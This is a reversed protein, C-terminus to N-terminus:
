LITSSSNLLLGSGGSPRGKSLFSVAIVLATVLVCGWGFVDGYRTYFSLSRRQDEPLLPIAATKFGAQYVDQSDKFYVEHMRGTRDVWCTIGNNACRVLPLNNEVARFIAAAAHQWQASSEGFWGNNTLNILFDTEPDVHLRSSHPFIDEFCILVSTTLQLPEIVFPVPGKGISFGGEIPTFYKLFPLWKVLPIYEGFVVLKQKRYTAALRGKPDVLFSSNYFDYQRKEGAIESRREADDAGLIIWIGHNTALGMVAPYSLEMDYRLINPVAAEPWILLDPHSALSQESLRILQRFRNTSEREDWILRQPISPQILAVRVSPSDASPRQSRQMGFGYILLVCALPILLPSLAPWFRDPERMWVLVAGALAASVWVTLFSIGYVGTWAAIQILPINEYQTTGSFNWPFGTLFRGRVMELCVWLAACFLAWATQQFFTPHARFRDASLMNLLNLESDWSKPYLRWSLWVWVAPYLAVYASLCLWGAVAGFPFPIYLLWSLSALFLAYGAVYGLRFAARPPQGYAVLLMLGPGVWALWAWGPKPFAAALLLGSLAAM